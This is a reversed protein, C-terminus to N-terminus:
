MQDITANILERRQDKSTDKVHKNVIERMKEALTRQEEKKVKGIGVIKQLNSKGMKKLDDILNQESKPDLSTITDIIPDDDDLEPEKEIIEEELDLEALVNKVLQELEEGKTKTIKQAKKYHSTDRLISELQVKDMKKLIQIAEINSRELTIPEDDDEILEEKEEIPEEQRPKAKILLKNDSTKTIFVKKKETSIADKVFLTSLSCPVDKLLDELVKPGVTQRISEFKSDAALSRAMHNFPHDYFYYFKDLGLKKLTDGSFLTTINKSDIVKKKIDLKDLEDRTIMVVPHLQYELQYMILWEEDENYNFLQLSVTNDTDKKIVLLNKKKILAVLFYDVDVPLHYKMLFVDFDIGPKKDVRTLIDIVSVIKKHGEDDSRKAFVEKLLSDDKKRTQRKFYSDYIYNLYFTYFLKHHPNRNFYTAITEFIERKSGLSSHNLFIEFLQEPGSPNFLDNEYFLSTILKLPTEIKLQRYSSSKSIYTQVNHELTLNRGSLYEDKIHYDIFRSDIYTDMSKLLSKTTENDLLFEEFEINSTSEKAEGYNDVDINALQQFLFPNLKLERFMMDSLQDRTYFNDPVALKFSGYSRIQDEEYLAEITLDTKSLDLVYKPKDTFDDISKIVITNDLAENIIDRLVRNDDDAVAAELRTQFMANHQLYRAFERQVELFLNYALDDRNQYNISLLQHSSHKKVLMHDFWIMTWQDGLAEIARMNPPLKMEKREIKNFYLSLNNSFKCGIVTDGDPLVLWREIKGLLPSKSESLLNYMKYFTEFSALTGFKFSDDLISNMQLKRDTIYRMLSISGSNHVPWYVSEDPSERLKLEVHSIKSYEDITVSSIQIVTDEELYDDGMEYGKTEAEKENAKDVLLFLEDPGLLSRPQLPVYYISLTEWLIKSLHDNPDLLWHREKFATLRFILHYGYSNKFLVLNDRNRRYLKGVDYMAPLKLKINDESMARIIFLNFGKRSIINEHGIIDWLFDENVYSNSGIFELFKDLNGFISSLTGNKFYNILPQNDSMNLRDVIFKRLISSANTDDLGKDGSVLNFGPVTQQFCLYAFPKFFSNISSRYDTYLLQYEDCEIAKVLASPLNSEKFVDNESISNKYTTWNHTAKDLNLSALNGVHYKELVERRTNYNLGYEGGKKRLKRYCKPICEGSKLFGLFFEQDKEFLEDVREIQGEIDSTVRDLFNLVPQLDTNPKYQISDESDYIGYDKNKLLDDGEEDEFCTHDTRKGKSYNPLCFWFVGHYEFGFMYLTMLYGFKNILKSGLDNNKSLDSGSSDSDSESNSEIEVKRLISRIRRYSSFLKELIVYLSSEEPHEQSPSEILKLLAIRNVQDPDLAYTKIGKLIKTCHESISEIVINLSRDPGKVQKILKEFSFVLRFLRYIFRHFTVGYAQTYPPTHKSIQKSTDFIKPCLVNLIIGKPHTQKLAERYETSRSLKVEESELKERLAKLFNKPREAVSQEKKEKKSSFYMSLSKKLFGLILHLETLNHINALYVRMCNSSVEGLFYVIMTHFKDVEERKVFAEEREGKKKLFTGEEKVRGRKKKQLFDTYNDIKKYFLIKKENTSIYNSRTKDLTPRDDKDDSIKITKDELQYIEKVYDIFKERMETDFRRIDFNLTENWKLDFIYNFNTVTIGISEFYQNLKALRFLSDDGNMAGTALKKASDYDYDVVEFMLDHRKIQKLLLHIKNILEVLFEIPKYETWNLVVQVVGDYKLSVSAYIQRDPDVQLQFIIAKEHIVIYEKLQVFVEKSHVRRNTNIWDNVKDVNDSDSVFAKYIRNYMIHETKEEKEEVEIDDGKDKQKKVVYRSRDIGTNFKIFPLNKSTRIGNFIGNLDLEVNKNNPSNITMILGSSLGEQVQIVGKDSPVPRKCFEKFSNYDAKSDARTLERRMFKIDPNQNQLSIYTKIQRSTIEKDVPEYKLGKQQAIYHNRWYIPELVELNKYVEVEQDSFDKLSDIKQKSPRNVMFLEIDNESSGNLLSILLSNQNDVISISNSVDGSTLEALVLDVIETRKKAYSFPNGSFVLEHFQLDHDIKQLFRFKHELQVFEQDRLDIGLDKLDKSCDELIYNYSFLCLNDPHVKGISGIKTKVDQLKDDFELFNNIFTITGEDKFGLKELFELKSALKIQDKLKESLSEQRVTTRYDDNAFYSPDFVYINVRDATVLEYVYAFGSTNM